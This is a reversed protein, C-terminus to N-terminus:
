QQFERLIRVINEHVAEPSPTSDIRKISPDKLARYVAAVAELDEKKEFPSLHPSRFCRIRALATKVPIELLFTVDAPRAFPRNEELILAMEVGRAGQYAVSSYVYRDCIVTQGTALAPVIVREVHDRRDAAFLRAEEHPSLRYTLSRIQRGYPGDSPEATLLCPAGCEQLRSALMKAQLTKGTGDIGEFVIFLPRLGM